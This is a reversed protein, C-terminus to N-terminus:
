RFYMLIAGFATILVILVSAMRISYKLYDSFAQIDDAQKPYKLRIANLKEKNFVELAGFQIRHQVLSKYVKMVRVRFYIQLFLMAVFLGIVLSVLVAYM